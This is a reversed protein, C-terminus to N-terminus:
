LVNFETFNKLQNEEEVVVKDVRAFLPGRHCWELFKELNEKEGEVESLVPGEAELYVSGDSENRAFGTINLKEAVSKASLRFGVGQVRGYIKINWHKM